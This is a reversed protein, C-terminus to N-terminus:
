RPPASRGVPVQSAFALRGYRSTLLSAVAPDPACVLLPIGPWFSAQRPVALFVAAAEPRHGM